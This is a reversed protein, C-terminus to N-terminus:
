SNNKRKIDVYANRLENIVENNSIIQQELDCITNNLISIHESEKLVMSSDYLTHPNNVITIFTIISKRFIKLCLNNYYNFHIINGYLQNKTINVIKNMLEQLWQREINLNYICKIYVQINNITEDFTYKYDSIILKYSM